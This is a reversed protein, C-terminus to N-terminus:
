EGTNSKQKSLSNGLLIGGGLLGIGLATAKGKHQKVATWLSKSKAIDKQKRIEVADDIIKDVETRDMFDNMRKPSAHTLISKVERASQLRKEHKSLAAQLDKVKSVNSGARSLLIKFKLPVIGGHAARIDRRVHTRLADLYEKKKPGDKLQTYLEFDKTWKREYSEM